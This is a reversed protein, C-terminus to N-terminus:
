VSELLKLNVSKTKSNGRVYTYFYNGFVIKMGYGRSHLGPTRNIKQTKLGRVIALKPWNEDSIVTIKASKEDFFVLTRGFYSEQPEIWSPTAIVRIRYEDVDSNWCAYKDTWPYDIQESM